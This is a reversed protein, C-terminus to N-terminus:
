KVRKFGPTAKVKADLEKWTINKRTNEGKLEAAIEKLKEQAEKGGQLNRRNLFGRLEHEQSFNAFKRDSKGKNM